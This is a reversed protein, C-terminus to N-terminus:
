DHWPKVLAQGPSGPSRAPAGDLQITTSPVTTLVGGACVDGRTDARASLRSQAGARAPHHAPAGGRRVPDPEAPPPHLQAPGGSESMAPLSAKPTTEGAHRPLPRSTEALLSNAVDGGRKPHSTGRM